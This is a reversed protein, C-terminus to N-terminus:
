QPRIEQFLTNDIYVQIVTYGSSLIVEDIRDGPAHVGRYVEKPGQDDVVVIRVEQQPPGPPVVMQLQTRRESGQSPLPQASVGPSPPVPILVVISVQAAPPVRTGPSPSQSEIREAQLGPSPKRQVEGLSLGAQRLLGEAEQVTKGVLSPVEVLQPGKSVVLSVSSGREVRVGPQPEQNIVTGPKAEPHFVERVAGARLRAQELLLRAEELERGVVNPVQILEPGLSVVVNVTRGEKVRREPPPDQSIIAGAPVTDSYAEQVVQLALNARQVMAQAEVLSLNQLDPVLVEPVNLYDTLAQWGAWSALLTALLLAAVWYAARRRPRGEQRAAPLVLTRTEEDEQAPVEEVRWRESERLLDQRMEAASRYRRRPDKVLARLIVGELWEPIGPNLLSPPPPPEHLHKLAVAIPNEGEFPLRGTVMEFLLIGLSYLDAAQDVPAGRAQEPSLYHITGLMEGTQTISASALARAIGFDAVKVKGEPTVLINQPKIDRHVIGHSHAYELVDCVQVAIAVAEDPSLWGRRRLLRKLDEGPVYEMVIYQIEGEEGRDLIRVMHPHTLQSIANAERAFREIFEANRSLHPRLIKIAVTAGDPLRRGRYVTAMGGEGIWEEVEYKGGLTLGTVIEM